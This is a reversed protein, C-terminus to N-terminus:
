SGALEQLIQPSIYRRDRALDSAGRARGYQRRAEGLRADDRPNALLALAALSCARYFYGRPSLAATRESEELLSISQQYKGAFFALMARREFDLRQIDVRLAAVEGRLGVTRASTRDIAELTALASIAGPLDRSDLARRVDRASQERAIEREVEGSRAADLGSTRAAALATRAAGFDGNGIQSRVTRQLADFQAATFAPPPPSTSSSPKETNVPPPSVPPKVDTPTAPVTAPPTGRSAPPTGRASAELKRALDDARALQNELQGYPARSLDPKQDRVLEFQRVADRYRGTNLYVVGLYYDPFYETRLAGYRLVTRGPRPGAKKAALLKAEAQPWEGKEIHAIAQDYLEYWPLQRTAVPTALCALAVVIAAARLGKMPWM